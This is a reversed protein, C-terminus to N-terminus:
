HHLPLVCFLWESWWATRYNCYTLLLIVLMAFHIPLFMCVIWCSRAVHLCNTHSIVSQWEQHSRPLSINRFKIKVFMSIIWMQIFLLSKLIWSCTMCSISLSQKSVSGSQFIFARCKSIHLVSNNIKEYKHLWKNISLFIYTLYICVESYEIVEFLLFLKSVFLSCTCSTLFFSPLKFFYMFSIYWWSM